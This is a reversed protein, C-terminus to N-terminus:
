SAIPVSTAALEAKERACAEDECLKAALDAAPPLEVYVDDGELRVPFTAIELADGSLCHGSELDFTKKHLPCAVKPRGKDDGLIGRALVMEHKHPCSNQAAYWEGRSAFHYLALQADGYRIAIGGNEVVDRASAVRVWERRVVPLRRVEASRPPSTPAPPPAPRIQGREPIWRVTPDGEQGDAFHRFRARKIPDRVVGTWECEYTEV